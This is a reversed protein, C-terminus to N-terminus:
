FLEQWLWCMGPQVTARKALQLMMHAVEQPDDEPQSFQGKVDAHINAAVCAVMRLLLCAKSLLIDKQAKSAADHYTTNAAYV